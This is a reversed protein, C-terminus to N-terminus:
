KKNELDKLKQAVEKLYHEREEEIGRLRANIKKLRSKKLIRYPAIFVEFELTKRYSDALSEQQQKYYNKSFQSAAM